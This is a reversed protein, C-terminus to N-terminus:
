RWLRVVVNLVITLVVSLIISTAVPFAIRIRAREIALDGPLRGLGIAAAAWVILGAVVLVGGALVLAGAVGNMDVAYRFM